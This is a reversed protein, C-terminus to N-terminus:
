KNENQLDKIVDCWSAHVGGSNHCTDCREVGDEDKYRLM